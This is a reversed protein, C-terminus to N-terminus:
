KGKLRRHQNEKYFLKNFPYLLSFFLLSLLLFNRANLKMSLDKKRKKEKKEIERNEKVEWCRM